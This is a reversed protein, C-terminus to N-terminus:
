FRTRSICMFIHTFYVGLPLLLFLSGLIRSRYAHIYQPVEDFPVHGLSRMLSLLPKKAYKLIISAKPGVNVGVCGETVGGKTTPVNVSPHLVNPIWSAPIFSLAPCLLVLNRRAQAFYLYSLRCKQFNFIGDTALSSLTLRFGPLTWGTKPRLHKDATFLFMTLPVVNFSPQWQATSLSSSCPCPVLDKRRNCIAGRPSWSQLSPQKNLVPGWRWSPRVSQSFSRWNCMSKSKIETWYSHVGKAFAVNAV